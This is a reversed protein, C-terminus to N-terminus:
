CSDNHWLGCRKKYVDELMEFLKEKYQTDPNGSLHIGKTEFIILRKPSGALRQVCALFDPYVRGRRWGQLFYDQKVAIRHWWKVASQGDIYLAFDKELTNFEGEYVPNFLVNMM